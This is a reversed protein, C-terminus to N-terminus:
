DSVGVTLFNIKQEIIESEARRVKKLREENMKRKNEM